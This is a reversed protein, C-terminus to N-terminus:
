TGHWLTDHRRLRTLMFVEPIAEFCTQETRRTPHPSPLAQRLRDLRNTRADHPADPPARGYPGARDPKPPLMFM